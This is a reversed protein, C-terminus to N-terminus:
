AAEATRELLTLIAREAPNLADDTAAADTLEAPPAALDGQLYASIVAPHIYSKRCVAPTNGLQQATAKVAAALCQQAATPSEAGAQECLALLCGVTGAWTRFDKATFDEGSIERLYDNVDASDVDQRQGDDDLYQFLQYGPLDRCRGVVRALRRDTLTLTHEIGSKGRFKFQVTSDEVAVHRDRLTTLGFSKNTVAYERNGVRILTKDLLQVIAALVKERPLGHRRLDADTYERIRPLAQGFALLRDFKTQERHERWRPHYRYQKRGKADRGTAQLHTAPDPSIWVDTYAPPIALARIRALTQEDRVPRGDLGSYSFGKGARKRHIGPVTDDIYRLRQNLPFPGTEGSLNANRTARKKAQKITTVMQGLRGVM